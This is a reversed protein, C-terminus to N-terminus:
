GASAAEDSRNLPRTTHNTSRTRNEGPIGDVPAKMTRPGPNSDGNFGEKQRRWAACELHSPPQTKIPSAMSTHRTQLPPTPLQLTGKTKLSPLPTLVPVQSFPPQTGPKEPLPLFTEPTHHFSKLAPQYTRSLAHPTEPSIGTQKKQRKTQKTLASLEDQLDRRFHTITKRRASRLHAFSFVGLFFHVMM